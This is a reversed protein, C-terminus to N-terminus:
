VRVALSFFLVAVERADHRDQRALVRRVERGVDGLAFLGFYAKREKIEKNIIIM